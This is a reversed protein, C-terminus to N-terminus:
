RTSGRRPGTLSSAYACPWQQSPNGPNPLSIPAAAHAAPTAHLAASVTLGLALALAGKFGRM